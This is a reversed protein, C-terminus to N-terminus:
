GRVDGGNDIYIRKDQLTSASPLTAVSTLMSPQFAPSMCAATSYWVFGSVEVFSSPCDSWGVEFWDCEYHGERAHDLGHFSDM